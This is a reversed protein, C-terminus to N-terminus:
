PAAAHAIFDRARRCAHTVMPQAPAGCARWGTTDAPAVLTLQVVIYRTRAVARQLLHDDTAGSAGTGGWAEDAGATSCAVARPVGRRRLLAGSHRAQEASAFALLRESGYIQGSADRFLVLWAARPLGDSALVATARSDVIQWGPPLDLATLAGAGLSTAGAIAAPARSRAEDHAQVQVWAHGLLLALLWSLLHLLWGRRPTPRM